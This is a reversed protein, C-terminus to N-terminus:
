PKLNVINNVRFLQCQAVQPSRFGVYYDENRKLASVKVWDGTVLIQQNAKLRRIQKAVNNNAAIVSFNHVNTRLKDIDPHSNEQAQITFCRKEQELQVQKLEANSINPEVLLLDINSVYALDNFSEVLPSAPHLMRREPSYYQKAIVRYEAQHPEITEVKFNKLVGAQELHPIARFYENWIWIGLAFLVATIFLKEM